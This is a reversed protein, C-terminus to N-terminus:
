GLTDRGGFVSLAFIILLDVGFLALAWFPYAPLLLLQVLGNLSAFGVGMWRAFQNRAWIGFATLVQAVGTVLIVWGWTSLDSILFQANGVYFNADDIAAIGGIVNLVGAIMLMVGAFTVWGQAHQEEYDVPGERYRDGGAAESPMRVTM